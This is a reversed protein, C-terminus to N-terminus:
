KIQVLSEAKKEGRYFLILKYKGKPYQMYRLDCEVAIQKESNPPIIYKTKEVNFKPNVDMPVSIHVIDPISDQLTLITWYNGMFLPPAGYPYYDDSFNDIEIDEEGTNEIFINFKSIYGNRLTNKAEFHFILEGSM